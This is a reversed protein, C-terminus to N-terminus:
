VIIVRLKRSAQKLQRNFGLIFQTDMEGEDVEGAANSNRVALTLDGVIDTHDALTDTFFILTEQHRGAHAIDCDISLHSAKHESGVACEYCTGDVGFMNVLFVDANVGACGVEHTGGHVTGIVVDRNEALLVGDAIVGVVNDARQALVVVLKGNVPLKGLDVAAVKEKDMVGTGVSESHTLVVVAAQPARLKQEFLVTGDLLDATRLFGFIIERCKILCRIVGSHKGLIVSKISLLEFSVKELCNM